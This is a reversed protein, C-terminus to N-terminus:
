SRGTAARAAAAFRDGRDAYDSFMDWSAAAPALLVTDGPRAFGAALQVARDMGDTDSASVEAVPVDPAHRSLAARISGRDRGLLVVARFRHAHAVVLPTVDAGKLLGGAVWVVSPYASLSAAAAHPNTAKSDDVWSVGGGSAVVENRHRGPRYARLGAAVADPAVGDSRALAAAALANALTHPAAPSVDSVAALRTGDGEVLQGAVIGVDGPGPADLGFGVRRPATAALRGTQPDDRNYVVTEAGRLIEAKDLVYSEFSGHWDAHDDALNLLAASRCAITTSWHLQFSSLEVAV